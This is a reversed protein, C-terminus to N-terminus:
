ACDLDVSKQQLAAHVAFQKCDVTDVASEVVFNNVSVLSHEFAAFEVPRTM